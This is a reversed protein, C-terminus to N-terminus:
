ARARWLAALQRALSLILSPHNTFEKQINKAEAGEEPLPPKKVGDRWPERSESGIAAVPERKFGQLPSGRLADVTPLRVGCGNSKFKLWVFGPFHWPVLRGRLVALRTLADRNGQSAAVTQM